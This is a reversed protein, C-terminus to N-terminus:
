QNTLYNIIASQNYYMEISQIKKLEFKLQLEQIELLADINVIATEFKKILIQEADKAQNINKIQTNFSLRADNRQAIAKSLSSTLVNWREQKQFEIEQKRFENQKTRSHYQKNFIPISLSVMPMLVDKGNELINVDPMAEVPIYDLGVGLMPAAEKQNLLDAQQISAYMKDFRLLEPNLQLSDIVIPDWDPIIMEANVVITQYTKRDLLNNMQVQESIFTEHLVDKQLQMENQRIQLKLLEVASSKGVEIATLVLKEYTNLLQINQDVVEQKAKIGFLKYYSHAVELALKRKAVLYDFYDTESLALAYDQRKSITGFWPLMQKASFRALQTGTRTEPESVFYGLGFETNPLSNVENVKELATNYRFEFAKITPNNEQAETIYSQLNQATGFASVFFLIICIISNKM